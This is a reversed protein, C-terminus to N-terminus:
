LFRSLPLLYAAFNHLGQRFVGILRRGLKCVDVHEQVENQVLKGGVALLEVEVVMVVVRFPPSLREERLSEM